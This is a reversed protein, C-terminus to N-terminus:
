RGAKTRLKNAWRVVLRKQVDSRSNFFISQDGAEGFEKWIEDALALPDKGPNGRGRKGDPDGDGDGAAGDPDAQAGAAM